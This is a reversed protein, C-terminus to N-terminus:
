NKEEDAYILEGTVDYADAGTVLVDVMDGSLYERDSEFFVYGDVDPADRYTRAAYVGEEPIRGEVMVTLTKGILDSSRDLAIRQQLEMLEGRRREKVEDPIQDPFQEAPTGEEPSYAFVGLRDFGVERIFEKLEEHEEETEGPFGSILTTRLAIGPVGARLKDIIKLIGEKTTKRGMRSLIRNSCHQIPLDLYSCIKKNRGMEGILEDTIEEPYCYLIRIWEIGDIESLDQLLPVLEKRGTLDTGYLSTEQAILILEKVQRAALERAEALIDDRGRSRYSGRVSPIICYTCHKDCGEAIRLYAYHGATLLVRERAPKIVPDPDEPFFKRVTKAIEHYSSTGLVADVEPIEKQIEEKYREALCGTVILARCRGGGTRLAGMELISQISEEKADQIFCCTNVVVADAEEESDTLSFGDAALISVMEQSDVLNKDCGLSILLIKRNGAM